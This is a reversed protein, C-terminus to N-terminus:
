PKVARGAYESSIWDAYAAQEARDLSQGNQCRASTRGEARKCQECGATHWCM